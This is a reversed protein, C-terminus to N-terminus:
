SLVMPNRFVSYLTPNGRPPLCIGNVGDAGMLEGVEKCLTFIQVKQVGSPFTFKIGLVDLSSLIKREVEDVLIHSRETRVPGIM